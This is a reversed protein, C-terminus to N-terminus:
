KRPKKRPDQSEHSNKRAVTSRCRCQKINPTKPQTETYCKTVDASTFLAKYICKISQEQEVSVCGIWCCIMCNFQILRPSIPRNTSRQFLLKCVSNSVLTSCWGDLNFIYDKVSGSGKLEWDHPMVISCWEHGSQSVKRSRLGIACRSDFEAVSLCCGPESM